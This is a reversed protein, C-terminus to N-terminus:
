QLREADIEQKANQRERKKIIKKLEVEWWNRFGQRRAEGNVHNDVLNSKLKSDIGYPKM